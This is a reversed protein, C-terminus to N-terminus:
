VRQKRQKEGSSLQTACNNALALHVPERVGHQAFMHLYDTGQLMIADTHALECQWPLRCQSTYLLVSFKTPTAAYPRTLTRMHNQVNQAHKLTQQHQHQQCDFSQVYCTM